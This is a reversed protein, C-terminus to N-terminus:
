LKKCVLTTSLYMWSQRKPFIYSLINLMVLIPAVFVVRLFLTVYKLQTDTIKGLFWIILQFIVEAYSGYQENKVIEFGNKQFIHVIWYHTYRAFDYPIEHEHIVFPITIVIQADKKLVRYLEQLVNDIDFIHEFVETAIVSDFTSDEFPLKKGDWFVDVQNQSNDHGTNKFDVWTYSDFIFMDKYPKEWCWFDLIKWTLFSKNKDLGKYIAKRMLFSHHFISLANIQFSSKKLISKIDLWM